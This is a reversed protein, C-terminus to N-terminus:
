QINRIVESLQKASIPGVLSAAVRGREDLVFTTPPSTVGFSNAIAGNADILSPYLSGYKVEFARATAIYDNFVIGVLNVTSRHEWAFTSLEPAETICPGCWSAWFTVVTVKKSHVALSWTKGDLTEGSLAPAVKGLLPSKSNAAETIPSRTALLIGLALALVLILSTTVAVPRKM